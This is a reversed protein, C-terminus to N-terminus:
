RTGLGNCFSRPSELVGQTDMSPTLCGVVDTWLYDNTKTFDYNKSMPLQFRAISILKRPKLRTPNQPKNRFPHPRLRHKGFTNPIMALNERRFDVLM